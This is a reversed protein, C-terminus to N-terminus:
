CCVNVVCGEEPSADHSVLGFGDGDLVDFGGESALRHGVDFVAVEGLEAAGGTIFSRGLYEFFGGVLFHGVGETV